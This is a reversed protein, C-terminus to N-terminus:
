KKGRIKEQIGACLESILALQDAAQRPDYRGQAAHLQILTLAEAMAPANVLLRANAEQTDRGHWPYTAIAVSSNDFAPATIHIGAVTHKDIAWPGPTHNM